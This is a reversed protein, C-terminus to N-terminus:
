KGRIFNTWVWVPVYKVARCHDTDVVMIKCGDSPPQKPPMEDAAIREWLLSEDPEGSKLALGSEGGAKATAAQSLDLGGKKALANHCQLCRQALLPAVQRDFSVNASEDASAFSLVQMVAALLSLVFQRTM